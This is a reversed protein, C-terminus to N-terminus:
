RTRMWSSNWKGILATLGTYLTAKWSEEDQDFIIDFVYFASFVDGNERKSKFRKDSDAAASVLTVLESFSIEAAADRQFNSTVRRPRAFISTQKRKPVFNLVPARFPTQGCRNM